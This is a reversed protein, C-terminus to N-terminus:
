QRMCLKVVECQVSKKGGRERGNVPMRLNVVDYQVSKEERERERRERRERERREEERERERKRAERKGERKRKREGREGNKKKKENLETQFM